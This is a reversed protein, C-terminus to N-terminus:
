NLLKQLAEFLARTEDPDRAGFLYDTGSETHLVLYPPTTSDAMIRLDPYEPATFRGKILHQGGIGMTRWLGEPLADLLELQEMEDLRVEYRSSSNECSISVDTQELTIASRDELGVASMWILSGVLVLLAFGTLLKGGTSALNCTTGVGTRANVMMHSDHPNYYFLGGIWYDDEDAYWETGSEETLKEQLKRTQMELGIVAGAFFLSSLIILGTGVAANLDIAWLAYSICVSYAAALLWIQKWKKYRLLSLAKTLEPDADVTEAKKRYCVRALVYSMAILGLDVLHMWWLKRQALMPILCLIACVLYGTANPKPYEVIVGLDVRVQQKPEQTWGKQAKVARLKRNFSMYVWVPAVMVVLLMVSWGILSTALDRIMAGAVCPIALLLCTRDMQKKFKRLVALVEADEHASKPLTVGLAINKKFKTENKQPFWECFLVVWLCSWLILGTM